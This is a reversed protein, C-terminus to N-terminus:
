VSCTYYFLKYNRLLICEIFVDGEAYAHPCRNCQRKHWFKTCSQPGSKRWLANIMVCSMAGTMYKHSLNVSLSEGQERYCQLSNCRNIEQKKNTEHKFKWWSSPPLVNRRFTPLSCFSVAKWKLLYDEYDCSHYNCMWGRYRISGPYRLRCLSPPSKGRPYLPRPTFSVVWRWCHRPWSFTPRYM